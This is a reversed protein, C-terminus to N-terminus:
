IKTQYFQFYFMCDPDMKNEQLLKLYIKFKKHTKSKNVSNVITPIHGLATVPLSVHQFDHSAYLKLKLLCSTLQSSWYSYKCSQVWQNVVIWHANLEIKFCHLTWWGTFIPKGHLKDLEFSFKWVGTIFWSDVAWCLRSDHLQHDDIWELHCENQLLYNEKPPEDMRVVERRQRGRRFPLRWKAVFGFKSFYAFIWQSKIRGTKYLSYKTPSNLKDQKDSIKPTAM